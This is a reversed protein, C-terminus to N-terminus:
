EKYKGTNKFNEVPPTQCIHILRKNFFSQIHAVIHM